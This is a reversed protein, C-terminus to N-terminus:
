MISALNDKRDKRKLKVDANYVDLSCPLSGPLKIPKKERLLVDVFVSIDANGNEWQEPDSLDLVEEEVSGSYNMQATIYRTEKGTLVFINANGGIAQCREILLSLPEEGLATVIPYDGNSDQIRLLTDLYGEAINDNIVSQFSVLNIHRTILQKLHSNRSEKSM